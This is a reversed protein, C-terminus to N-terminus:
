AGFLDAYIANHIEERMKKIDEYNYKKFDNKVFSFRTANTLIIVYLQKERNIFFSQGTHGTHGFSGKPFLKGTQSFTENVLFYGLGKSEGFDPTHNTEAMEYFREPYLIESKDLVATIFKQIDQLCSQQGGSGAPKGMILVRDSDYRQKPTDKWRYCVAANEENLAIEFESRHLGLPEAINKKYVEELSCGYIKELIYGLLIYPNCSYVCDTGPAFGLPYSLMLRAIEDSGKRAAEETIPKRLIGSTHTLMQRVTIKQKQADAIDFFDGITSELRLLGRGIAQLILTSTILVKGMSAIDFYTYPDANGSFLAQEDEGYHVLVAYTDLDKNELM